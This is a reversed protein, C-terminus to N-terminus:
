VFYKAQKCKNKPHEKDAQPNRDADEQQKACFLSAIAITTPYARLTFSTSGASGIFSALTMCATASYLTLCISRNSM